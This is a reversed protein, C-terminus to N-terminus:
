SWAIQGTSTNYSGTGYDQLHNHDTIKFSVIETNVKTTLEFAERIIIELAPKDTLTIAGIEKEVLDM